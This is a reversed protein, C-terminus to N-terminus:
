RIAPISAADLDHGIPRDHWREVAQRAFAAPLDIGSDPCLLMRTADLTEALTGADREGLSTELAQLSALQEPRVNLLLRSLTAGSLVRDFSGHGVRHVFRTALLRASLMVSASEADMSLFSTDEVEVDANVAVLPETLGAVLHAEVAAATAAVTEDIRFVADADRMQFEDELNGEGGHEVLDVSVGERGSSKVCLAPEPAAVFMEGGIMAFKGMHELFADAQEEVRALDVEKLAMDVLPVMATTTNLSRDWQIIAEGMDRPYVAGVVATSLRYRLRNLEATVESEARHHIARSNLANGGPSYVFPIRGDPTINVSGAHLYLRGDLGRYDRRHPDNGIGGRLRHALRLVVPAEEPSYEPIDVTASALAFVTKANRSKATHGSTIVPFEITLRM